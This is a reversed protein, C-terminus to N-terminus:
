ANFYFGQEDHYLGAEGATIPFSFREYEGTRKASYLQVAGGADGSVLEMRMWRGAVRMHMAVESYAVAGIWQEGVSVYRKM